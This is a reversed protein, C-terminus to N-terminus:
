AEKLRGDVVVQVHSPEGRRALLRAPRRVVQVGEIDIGHKDLVPLLDQLLAYNNPTKM